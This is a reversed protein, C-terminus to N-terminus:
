EAHYYIHRVAEKFNSKSINGPDDFSKNSWENEFKYFDPETVQKGELKESLFDFYM